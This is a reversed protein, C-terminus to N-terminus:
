WQWYLIFWEFPISQWHDFRYMATATSPFSDYLFPCLHRRFSFCGSGPHPQYTRSRCDSLGRIDSFRIAILFITYTYTHTYQSHISSPHRDSCSSMWCGCQCQYCIEFDNRLCVSLVNENEKFKQQVIQRTTISSLADNSNTRSSAAKSMLSSSSVAASITPISSNSSTGTGGSGGLSTM